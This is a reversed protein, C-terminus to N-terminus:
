GIQKRERKNFGVLEFDLPETLVKNRKCYDCIGCDNPKINGAKINLIRPINNRVENFCEDLRWQPISIVEIDPVEEKTIAAIYVPLLKGTVAEHVRQYIALQTDYGWHQIFSIGYVRDFSRCTKLDVISDSNLSDIKVKWDASLVNATEIVQKEGSMYKMFFPDREARAIMEDAKKYDARLKGQKTFIEPHNKTFKKLTGEFYADVYSGVVMAKTPEESYKGNIKAMAMAECKLFDKYQSNSLYQKDAKRSYYNRETLIKIM